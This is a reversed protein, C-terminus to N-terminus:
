KVKIVEEFARKGFVTVNPNLAQVYSNQPRAIWNM